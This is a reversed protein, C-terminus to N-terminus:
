ASEMTIAAAAKKTMQTPSFMASAQTSRSQGRSVAPNVKMANRM